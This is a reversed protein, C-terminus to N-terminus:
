LFFCIKYFSPLQMDELQKVIKTSFDKITKIQLMKQTIIKM